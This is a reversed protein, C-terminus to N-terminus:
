KMRRYKCQIVKEVFMQAFLTKRQKSFLFDVNCATLNSLHRIVLANLLFISFISVLLRPYSQVKKNKSGVM